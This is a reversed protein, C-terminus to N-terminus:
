AWNVPLQDGTCQWRGGAAINLTHTNVCLAELYGHDVLKQSKLLTDPLAQPLPTELQWAVLM